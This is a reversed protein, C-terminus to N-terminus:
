RATEMNVIVTGDDFVKLEGACAKLELYAPAPQNQGGVPVVVAALCFVAGLRLGIFCKYAPFKM